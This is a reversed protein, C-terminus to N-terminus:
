SIVFNDVEEKTLVLVSKTDNLKQFIGAKKEWGDMEDDLDDDLYTTHFVITVEADELKKGIPHDIPIGYKLTKYGFTYLKEENIIETRVDSKEALFDGEIVGKIGLKPFYRVCLKLKKASDGTYYKDVGSESYCYDESRFGSKTAAFFKGSYPSEGCIISSDTEIDDTDEVSTTEKELRRNIVEITGGVSIFDNVIRPLDEKTFCYNIGCVESGNVEVVLEDGREFTGLWAVEGPAWIDSGGDQLYNWLKEYDINKNM